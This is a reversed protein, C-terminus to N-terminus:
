NRDLRAKFRRRLETHVQEATVTSGSEVDSLGRAIYSKAWSLDQKEIETQPEFRTKMYVGIDNEAGIVCKVANQEIAAPPSCFSATAM